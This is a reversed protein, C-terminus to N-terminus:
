FAPIPVDTLVFPVRVEVPHVALVHRITDYDETGQELQGLCDCGDSAASAFQHFPIMFTGDTSVLGTKILVYDSVTRGPNWPMDLTLVYSGASSRVSTDYLWLAIPEAPRTGQRYPDNEMGPIVEWKIPGPAPPTTASVSIQINENIDIWEGTVEFPIDGEIVDEAYLTCITGEVRSLIAPVPQNPDLVM